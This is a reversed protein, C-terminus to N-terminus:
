CQRQLDPDGKVGLLHEDAPELITDLEVRVAPPGRLVHEVPDQGRELHLRDDRGRRRLREQLPSEVDLREGGCRFRPPDPSDRPERVGIPM